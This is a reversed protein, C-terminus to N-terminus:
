SYSVSLGAALRGWDYDLGLVGTAVDRDLALHEETGAFHTASGRGWVTWTGGVGFEKGDREASSVRFSSGALLERFEMTRFPVPASEAARTADSAAELTRGALAVHSGPVGHETLRRGIAEMVHTGVTRGFRALWARSVSSDDDVIMGTATADALTVHAPDILVMTFTEDMEDLADDMLAIRITGETQGPALTLVGLELEYDEYATATVDESICTVTVEYGSEASLRVMFEMAGASEIASADEIVLLPPEDDDAITGTASATGLSVGTPLEGATLTVAFTERHPAAPSRPWTGAVVAAPVEIRRAQQHSSVM